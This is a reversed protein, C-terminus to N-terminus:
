RRWGSSRTPGNANWEGSGTPCSRRPRATTRSTAASTSASSTTPITAGRRRAQDSLGDVKPFSKEYGEHLLLDYNAFLYHEGNWHSSRAATPRSGTSRIRGACRRGPGRRTSAPRSISSGSRPSSRPFGGLQLRHRRQEDGGPPPLRLDPQARAPGARGPHAGRASPTPSSSSVLGSLEVRGSRLLGLLERVKAEGPPLPSLEAAGLRSRHELPVQGGRSLGGDGQLVRHRLRSLRPPEQGGPVPPRHLRYRHPLAPPPLGDVQAAPRDDREPLRRAPGSQPRLLGQGRGRRRPSARRGDLPRGPRLSARAHRAEPLGQGPGPRRRGPRSQRDRPRVAEQPGERGRRFAPDAQGRLRAEGRGPRAPVAARLAEARPAAPAALCVALVIAVRFRSM